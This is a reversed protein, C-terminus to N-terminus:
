LFATGPPAGTRPHEGGRSGSDSGRRQGPDRAPTSRRRCTSTPWWHSILSIRPWQAVSIVLCDIKAARLADVCSSWTGRPASGTGTTPATRRRLDTWRLDDLPHVRRLRRGGAHRAARRARPPRVARARGDIRLGARPLLLRDRGQGHKQGMADVERRPERSHLPTGCRAARVRYAGIPVEARHTFEAPDEELSPTKQIPGLRNHFEYADGRYIVEAFYLPEEDINRAMFFMLFGPTGEPSASSAANQGRISHHPHDRGPHLVEPPVEQHPHRLRVRARGGAVPRAADARPLFAAGPDHARRRRASAAGGRRDGRGASAPFRAAVHAPLAETTMRTFALLRTSPRKGAALTKNTFSTAAARSIHQGNDSDEVFTGIGKRFSLVGEAVLNSLAKNATVRSVDFRESIQRETLFKDGIRFEDSKTLEKLIEKLQIYLPNRVLKRATM